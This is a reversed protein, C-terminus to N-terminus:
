PIPPCHGNMPTLCAKHTCGPFACARCCLKGPPCDSDKTCSTGSQRPEPAPTQLDAAGVLVACLVTLLLVGLWRRRVQPQSAFASVYRM